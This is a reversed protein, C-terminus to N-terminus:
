QLRSKLKKPLGTCCMSSPIRTLPPSAPFLFSLSSIQGGINHSSFPVLVCSANMMAVFDTSPPDVFKRAIRQTFGSHGRQNLAFAFFSPPLFSYGGFDIAVIRNGEDKMFNAHNLDSPCLCLEFGFSVRQIRGM